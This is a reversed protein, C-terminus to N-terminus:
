YKKEDTITIYQVIYLIKNASQATSLFMQKSLRQLNSSKLLCMLVIIVFYVLTSICQMFVIPWQFCDAFHRISFMSNRICTINLSKLLFSCCSEVRMTVSLVSLMANIDSLGYM